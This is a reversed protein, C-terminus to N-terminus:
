TSALYLYVDQMGHCFGSITLNTHFVRSLDRLFLIGLLPFLFILWKILEAVLMFYVCFFM